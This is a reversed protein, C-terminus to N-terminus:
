FAKVFGATLTLRPGLQSENVRIYAPLQLVGYLSVSPSVGVRLGQALQVLTLGTSPVPEGNLTHRGARQVKIQFQGILRPGFPGSVSLAGVADDSYRYGEGNTTTKQLSGIASFTTRSVKMVYQLSGVFDFAGTGTQLMPDAVGDTGARASPGTPLKVTLGGIVDRGDGSLAAWRLGLQLDGVGKVQNRRAFAGHSVDAPGANAGDLHLSDIANQRFLPLTASATLSRGIARSLDLQLFTMVEGTEQHSAAEFAGRSLDVRPRLVEATADRGTLRRGQDVYRFSTDLRWQGPHLATDTYRMAVACAASDCAEARPALLFPASLLLPAIAPLLPRMRVSRAAM